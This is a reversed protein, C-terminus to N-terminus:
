HRREAGVNVV